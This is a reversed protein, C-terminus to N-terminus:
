AMALSYLYNLKDRNRKLRMKIASGSLQLKQQLREISEDDRYKLILLQKENEPLTDLLSLMIKESEEAEASDTREEIEKFVDPSLREMSSRKAKRLYELCYRHTIVYLWTSFSAQRRFSSLKDFAKLLSEEALDFAIDADKVLSKCKRYVPQYYRDYLEGLALNNNNLIAVLLEEDSQNKYTKM